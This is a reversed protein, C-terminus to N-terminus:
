WYNYEHKEWPTKEFRIITLPHIVSKKVHRMFGREMMRKKYVLRPSYTTSLDTAWPQLLTDGERGLWGTHYCEMYEDVVLVVQPIETNRYQFYLIDGVRIDYDVLYHKKIGEKVM